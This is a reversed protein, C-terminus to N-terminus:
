PSSEGIGRRSRQRQRYIDRVRRVLEAPVEGAPARSSHVMKLFRPLAPDDPSTDDVFVPFVFPVERPLSKLRQEAESWEVRFLGIERTLCARSIVAIFLSSRAIQMRILHPFMDAALMEGRDFWVKIGAQVLTDRIRRAAHYDEKAYSLFIGGVGQESEADIEDGTGLDSAAERAIADIRIAENVQYTGPKGHLRPLEGAAHHVGILNWDADFVPSGSSSLETPARYHLHRDTYDVLVAEQISISFSISSSISSSGGPGGEPLGLIYVRPSEELRPLRAAFPYPLVSLAPMPELRAVAIDLSPSTWVVERVACIASDKTAQFSLRARLSRLTSGVPATVAHAATVLLLDDGFPLFLDRGRLLFGTAVPQGCEDEIRAMLKGRELGTKYRNLTGLGSGGFARELAPPMSKSHRTTTENVMVEIHGGHRALLAAKLIPLISSGPERGADLEWM